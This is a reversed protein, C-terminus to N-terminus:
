LFRAGFSVGLSYDDRASSDRWKSQVYGAEILCYTKEIDIVTGFQVSKVDAIGSIMLDQETPSTLDGSADFSRYSYSLYPLVKKSLRYGLTAGLEYADIDLVADYTRSGGSGNTATISKRDVEDSGYGGFVSFKYGEERKDEGSGILQVKVGYFLPADHYRRLYVETFTGLGLAGMLNLSNDKVTGQETSVNIQSSFINSQELRALQFKTSNSFDGQTRVGLTKGIVEPTMFVQAPVHFDLTTSCSCLFFAIFLFYFLSYQKRKNIKKM